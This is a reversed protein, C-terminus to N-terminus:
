HDPLSTDWDFIDDDYVSHSSDPSLMSRIAEALEGVGAGSAASCCLVDVPQTHIGPHEKEISEAMAWIEHLLEEQV